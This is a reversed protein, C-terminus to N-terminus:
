LITTPLLYFYPIYVNEVHYFLTRKLGFLALLVLELLCLIQKPVTIDGLGLCLKYNMYFHQINQVNKIM